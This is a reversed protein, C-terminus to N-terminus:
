ENTPIKVTYTKLQMKPLSKARIWPNYERLTLYDIGQEKAWSPWDEVPTDVTVTRFEMPQYLQDASIRFGFKKPNEMVTKMALLRFMYRMTEDALYLDYASDVGQSALENTIRAQGGNYSAAM